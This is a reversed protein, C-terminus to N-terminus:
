ASKAVVFVIVPVVLGALALLWGVTRVLAFRRTLWRTVGVWVGVVLLPLVVGAVLLVVVGDNNSSDPAALGLPALVWQVIAYGLIVFPITGVLGLLVSTM